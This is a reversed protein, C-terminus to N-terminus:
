KRQDIFKAMCLTLGPVSVVPVTLFLKIPVISFNIALLLTNENALGTWPVGVYQYCNKYSTRAITLCNPIGM